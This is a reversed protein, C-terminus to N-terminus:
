DSRPPTEKKKKSSSIGVGLFVVGVAVYVTRTVPNRMAAFFFMLAAIFALIQFRNNKM